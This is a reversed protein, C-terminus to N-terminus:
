GMENVIKFMLTMMCKCKSTNVSLHNAESLREISLIDNQVFTFNEVSFIRQYLLDDALTDVRWPTNIWKRWQGSNMIFLKIISSTSFGYLQIKYCELHFSMLDVPNPHKWSSLILCVEGKTCYAELYSM